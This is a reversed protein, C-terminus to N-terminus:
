SSSILYSKDWYLVRLAGSTQSAWQLESDRVLVRQIHDDLLNRIWRVTWKEFGERELKSLLINYSFIDSSKCFDLADVGRGKDM